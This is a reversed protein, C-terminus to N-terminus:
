TSVAESNKAFLDVLQLCDRVKSGRMAARGVGHMGVLHLIDEIKQTLKDGAEKFRQPYTPDLVRPM